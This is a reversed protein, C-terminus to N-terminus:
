YISNNKAVLQVDPQETHTAGTFVCDLADKTIHINSKHTLLFSGVSDINQSM